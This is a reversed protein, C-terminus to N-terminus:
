FEVKKEGFQWVNVQLPRDPDGSLEVKEGYVRPAIKSAMWKRADVRMKDRQVAAQQLSYLIRDKDADDVDKLAHVMAELRAETDGTVGDAIDIAEEAIAQAQDGRARAYMVSLEALEPDEALWERLQGATVGQEKCADKVLAGESVQRCVEKIVTHRDHLRPAGAPM